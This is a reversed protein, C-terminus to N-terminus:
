SSYMGPSTLGCAPSLLDPKLASTQHFHGPASSWTHDTHGQGGGWIGESQQPWTPWRPAEERWLQGPSWQSRTKISCFTHTNTPTVGQGQVGPRVLAWGDFPEWGWRKLVPSGSRTLLLPSPTVGRHGSSAWGTGEAGSTRGLNSRPHVHRKSSLLFLVSVTPELSM